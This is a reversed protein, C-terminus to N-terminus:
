AYRVFSGVQPTGYIGFGVFDPNLAEGYIAFGFFNDLTESRIINLKVGAPRPLSQTAALITFLTDTDSILDVYTISMDMEDFVGANFGFFAFLLDDINGVSLLMAQAQARFQTLRCLEDDTLAYIPRNADTYSDFYWTIPSQGYLAFGPVTDADSQGYLPMQFYIRTLDAGFVLRYAGKYSAVAELQVGRATDAQLGIVTSFNFGESVTNIIQDAIVQSVYAAITARARPSVSYQIILLDVYYEILEDTTM